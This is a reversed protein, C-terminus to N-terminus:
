AAAEADGTELLQDLSVGIISAVRMAMALGVGHHGHRWRMVTHRTVGLAEGRATDDDAVGMEALRRELVDYRLRITRGTNGGDPAPTVTM